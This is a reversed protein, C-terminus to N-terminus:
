KLYTGAPIPKGRLLDATKMAPKGARQIRTPRIADKGCAITLREDLVNGPWGGGEIVDAMFGADTGHKIVDSVGAAAAGTDGLM